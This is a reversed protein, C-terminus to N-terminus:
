LKLGRLIIGTYTPVVWLFGSYRSIRLVYACYCYYAGDKLVGPYNSVSQLSIKNYVNNLNLALTDNLKSTVEREVRIREVCSFACKLHDGKRGLGGQGTSSSIGCKLEEERGQLM